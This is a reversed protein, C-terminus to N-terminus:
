ACLTVSFRLKDVDKQLIIQIEQLYGTPLVMLILYIDHLYASPPDISLKKQKTLHQNDIVQSKRPGIKNYSM